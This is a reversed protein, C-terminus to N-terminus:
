QNAKYTYIEPVEPLDYGTGLFFSTNPAQNYGTNETAVGCRYQADHMLTTLKVDTEFTTEFIRIKTGNDAQLIVEERWDHRENM